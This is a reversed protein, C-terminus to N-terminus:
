SCLTIRWQTYQAITAELADNPLPNFPIRFSGTHQGSGSWFILEAGTDTKTNYKRYQVRVWPVTCVRSATTLVAAAFEYSDVGVTKVVDIGGDDKPVREPQPNLWIPYDAHSLLQIGIFLPCFDLMDLTVDRVSITGPDSM